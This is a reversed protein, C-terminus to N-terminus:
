GRLPHLKRIAQIPVLLLPREPLLHGGDSDPLGLVGKRELGLDRVIPAQHEHPEPAALLGQGREGDRELAVRLEEVRQLVPEYAAPENQSGSASDYSPTAPPTATPAAAPAPRLQRREAM